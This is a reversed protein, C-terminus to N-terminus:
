TGSRAIIGDMKTKFLKVIKPRMTDRARRVYPRGGQQPPKFEVDAAYPAESRFEATLPGTQQVEFGAQLIGTDRNPYEGPLSPVHNKGSVSGASIQHFAEARIMDAGAYVVAGAAKVVEASALKRLRRVHKDGGKLGM